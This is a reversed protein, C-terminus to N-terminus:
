QRRRRTVPDVPDELVVDFGVVARSQIRPRGGTRDGLQDAEQDITLSSAAARELVVEPDSTAFELAFAGPGRDTLYGALPTDARAPECYELEIGGLTIRFSRASAGERYAYPKSRSAPSFLTVLNDYTAAIDGVVLRLRELRLKTPSRVTGPRVFCPQQVTQDKFRLFNPEMIELDLGILPRSRMFLFPRTEGGPRTNDGYDTLSNVATSPGEIRTVAGVKNLVARAHEIDDVYFNLNSVCPGVTELYEQHVLKNGGYTAAPSAENMQFTAAGCDVHDVRYGGQPFLSTIEAALQQEIPSGGLVEELFGRAAWLDRVSLEVQFCGYLLSITM